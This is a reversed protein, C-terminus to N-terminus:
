HGYLTLPTMGYDRTKELPALSRPRIMMIGSRSIEECSLDKAVGSFRSQEPHRLLLLCFFPAWQAGRIM